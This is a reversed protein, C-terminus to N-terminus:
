LKLEVKEYEFYKWWLNYILSIIAMITVKKQFFVLSIIYKNYSISKSKKTFFIRFEMLALIVIREGILFLMPHPKLWLKFIEKFSFIVKKSFKDLRSLEPIGIDFARFIIM